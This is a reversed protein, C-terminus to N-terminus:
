KNRVDDRMYKVKYVFGVVFCIFGIIFFGIWVFCPIPCNLFILAGEVLGVTGGIIVLITAKRRSM